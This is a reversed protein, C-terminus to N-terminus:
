SASIPLYKAPLAGGSKVASYVTAPNAQCWYIFSFSPEAMGFHSKLSTSAPIFLRPVVWQQALVGICRKGTGTSEILWTAKGGAITPLYGNSRIEAIAAEVSLSDSLVISSEHSEFDDGAHVSDRDLRVELTSLHSRVNSM